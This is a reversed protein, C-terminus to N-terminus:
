SNAAVKVLAVQATGAALLSDPAPATALGNVSALISVTVALALGFATAQRMAIQTTQKATTFM